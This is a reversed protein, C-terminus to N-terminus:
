QIEASERAFRKYIFARFGNPMIVQVAFRVLVNYILRFVSIIRKKYMFMQLKAESRFYKWGGRRAYMEKSVRVNVLIEDLNAFEFGCLAMRIWLYYDENSFWDLYGGALEVSDKKFMVTVQNFPCRSKMYNKIDEDSMPVQRVGVVNEPSGIFERINGGVISLNPNEKFKALQKEFRDPLSIDDADMIAILPYRCNSIGIRRAEGHGSNKELYIVNLNDHKECFGDIATQLEQPIPGDVVLVIEDPPATQNIVSDMATKFHEPNDKGYVCMSVSFQM